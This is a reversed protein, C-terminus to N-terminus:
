RAAVAQRVSCESGAAVDDGHHICGTGWSQRTWQCARLYVADKAKKSAMQSAPMVCQKTLRPESWGLMMSAMTLPWFSFFPWNGLIMVQGFSTRGVGAWNTGRQHM